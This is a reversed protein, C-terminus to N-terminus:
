ARLRDPRPTRSDPTPDVRHAHRDPDDRVFGVQRSHTHCTRRGHGCTGDPVAGIPRVAGSVQYGLDRLGDRFPGVLNAELAATSNGLFGIQQRVKAPQQARAVLPWAAVASSFSTIFERRNM